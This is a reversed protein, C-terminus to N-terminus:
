KRRSCMGPLCEGIPILKRICLDDHFTTNEFKIGPMISALGIDTHSGNDIILEDINGVQTQSKYNGQFLPLSLRSLDDNVANLERDYGHANYRVFWASM